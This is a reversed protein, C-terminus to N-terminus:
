RVDHAAGPSARIEDEVRLAGADLVIRRLHVVGHAGWSDNRLRLEVTGDAAAHALEVRARPAGLWMFGPGRRAMPVAPLSVTNHVEPGILGNNWPPEANYRYSGADIAVPEGDLWIDVHAPDLHSPRSG